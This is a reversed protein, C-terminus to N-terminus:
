FACLSKLVQSCLVDHSGLTQALVAVSWSVNLAAAGGLIHGLARGMAGDKNEGMAKLILLGRFFAIAGILQVFMMVAKIAQDFEEGGGVGAKAWGPVLASVGIDAQAQTAQMTALVSDAMAPMTWLAVGSIATWIVKSATERGQELHPLMFAVKALLFFGALKAMVTVAYVIGPLSASLAIFMGALDQNNQSSASGAEGGSFCASVKSAMSATENGGTQGLCDELKLTESFSHLTSPMSLLLTAVLFMTLPKALKVQHPNESHEKFQVLSKFAAWAGAIYCFAHIQGVRAADQSNLLQQLWSDDGGGFDMYRRYVEFRLIEAMSPTKPVETGAPFVRNYVPTATTTWNKSLADASTSGLAAPARFSAISALAQIAPSLRAQLIKGKATVLQGAPSSEVDKPMAPTSFSAVINKAAISAVTSQKASFTLSSAKALEGADGGAVKVYDHAPVFLSQGRLDGNPMPGTSQCGNLNRASGFAKAADSKPDFAM